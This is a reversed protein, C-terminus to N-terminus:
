SLALIKSDSVFTFLNMRKSLYKLYNYNRLLQKKIRDLGVNESKLEINLICENSIKLLDFEKGIHPITYSYYFHELKKISCEKLLLEVLFYLSGKEREGLNTVKSRNSLLKEYNRYDTINVKSATYLYYLNVPQYSM